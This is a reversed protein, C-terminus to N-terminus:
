ILISFLVRHEDTSLYRQVHIQLMILWAHFPNQTQLNIRQDNKHLNEVWLNELYVILNSEISIHHHKIQMCKNVYM